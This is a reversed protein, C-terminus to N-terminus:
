WITSQAQYLKTSLGAVTGFEQCVSIVVARPCAMVGGHTGEPSSERASDASESAWYPARRSPENTIGAEKARAATLTDAATDAIAAAAAAATVTAAAATAAAATAVAATGATTAKTAKTPTANPPQIAAPTNAPVMFCRGSFFALYGPESDGQVRRYMGEGSGGEEDDSELRRLIEPPFIDRAISAQDAGKCMIADYFPEGLGTHVDVAVHGNNESYLAVV